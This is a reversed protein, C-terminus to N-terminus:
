TLYCQFDRITTGSSRNRVLFRRYDGFVTRNEAASPHNAGSVTHNRDDITHNETFIMHNRDSVMHNEARITHNGILVTHNEAGNPHNKDLVMRNEISVLTGEDDTQPDSEVYGRCQRRSGSRPPMTPLRPSPTDRPRCSTSNSKRPIRKRKRFPRSNEPSRLRTIRASANTTTASGSGSPDAPLDKSQHSFRPRKSQRTKM